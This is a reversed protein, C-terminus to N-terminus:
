THSAQRRFARGSFPMHGLPAFLCVDFVGAALPVLGIVSLALFGGGLAIGAIVLALGAVIRVARGAPSSMFTLFTM